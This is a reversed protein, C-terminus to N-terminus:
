DYTEREQSLTKWHIVVWKETLAQSGLKIRLHNDEIIVKCRYVLAIRSFAALCVYFLYPM